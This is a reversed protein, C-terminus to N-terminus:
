AVASVRAPVGEAEDRDAERVAYVMFLGSSDAVNVRFGRREFERAVRRVDGGSHVEVAAQRVKPWDAADIGALIECELSETDIKLLDIRALPCGRVVESLTTLEVEIPVPEMYWRRLREALRALLTAPVIHGLVVPFRRRLYAAVHGRYAQRQDASWPRVTSVEPMRPCFHLTARGPRDSLGVNYLHYDLGPPGALNRQLAQFSQPAPEFSYVSARRVQTALWLEFLGVNAGVNVVTDGDRVTLGHQKYCQEEFIERYVFRAAHESAAWITLGNPLTVQKM